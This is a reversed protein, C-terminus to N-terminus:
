DGRSQTQDYLLTTGSGQPVRAYDRDITLLSGQENDKRETIIENGATM